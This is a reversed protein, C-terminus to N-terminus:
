IVKLFFGFPLSDTTNSFHVELGDTLTYSNSM